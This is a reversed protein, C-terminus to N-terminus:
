CQWLTAPCHHAVRMVVRAMTAATAMAAVRAMTAVTAAILILLPSWIVLRHILAFTKGSWTTNLLFHPPLTSIYQEKIQPDVATAASHTPCHDFFHM